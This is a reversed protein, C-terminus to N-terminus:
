TASNFIKTETKLYAMELKGETETEFRTKLSVIRIFIHEGWLNTKM